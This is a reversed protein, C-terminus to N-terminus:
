KHILRHTAIPVLTRPGRPILGSIPNTMKKGSLCIGISFLVKSTKELTLRAANM